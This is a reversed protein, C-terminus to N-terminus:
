SRLNEIPFTYKKIRQLADELTPVIKNTGSVLLLNKAAYPWAWEAEALMVVVVGMAIANM